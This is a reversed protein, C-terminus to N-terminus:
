GQKVDTPRGNFIPVLPGTNPAMNSLRSTGMVFSIVTWLLLVLDDHDCGVWVLYDNLGLWEWM